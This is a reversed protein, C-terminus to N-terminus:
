RLKLLAISDAAVCVDRYRLRDDTVDGFLERAITNSLSRSKTRGCNEGRRTNLSGPGGHPRKRCKMPPKSASAERL